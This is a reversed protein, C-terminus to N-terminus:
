PDYKMDISVVNGNENTRYDLQWWHSGDPTYCRYRIIKGGEEQVWIKGTGDKTNSYLGRNGSPSEVQGM